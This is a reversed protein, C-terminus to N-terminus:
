EVGFEPQPGLLVSAVGDERTARTVVYNTPFEEWGRRQLEDMLYQEVREVIDPDTVDDVAHDNFLQDFPIEFLRAERGSGVTVIVQPALTFQQEQNRDTLEPQNTM